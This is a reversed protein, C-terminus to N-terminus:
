QAIVRRYQILERWDFTPQPRQDPGPERAFSYTRYKSNQPYQLGQDVPPLDRRRLLELAVSRDIVFVGRYGPSDARKAGIQFVAPTADSGDHDGDTGVPTADFFDCQIFAVYTNSRTTGHDLVKGLLRYRTSFEANSGLIGKGPIAAVPGPNPSLPARGTDGLEFLARRGQYADTGGAADREVGNLDLTTLINPNFTNDSDAPMTRLLTRQFDSGIPGFGAAAPASGFDLFPRASPVGPLVLKQGISAQGLYPDFGGDRSALMALWWDRAFVGTPPLVGGGVATIWRETNIGSTYPVPTAGGATLFGLGSFPALFRPKDNPFSMARPDDLLGALTSPHRIMNVNIKGFERQRLRERLAPQRQGPDSLWPSPGGYSAFWPLADNDGHKKPVEVFEFLRYWLNGAPFVSARAGPVPEPAVDLPAPTARADADPFLFNVAATQRPDYVAVSNTNGGIKAETLERPTYLPVTLLDALTAFPRDFHRQWYQMTGGTSQRGLNNYNHGGAVFEPADSTAIGNDALPEIRNEARITDIQTLMEANTTTGNLDFVDLDVQMVDVIIWPNDQEIDEQPSGSTVDVPPATYAVNPFNTTDQVPAFRNLNARRRLYFTVTSSGAALGDRNMRSGLNLWGGAKPAAGSTALQDDDDVSGFARIDRSPDNDDVETMRFTNQSATAERAMLDFNLAAPAPAIREYDNFSGPDADKTGTLDISFNSPRIPAGPPTWATRTAIDSDPRVNNHADGSTGVSYAAGPLVAAAPDNLTVARGSLPTPGAGARCVISWGGGLSVPTATMNQLEVYTFDFHFEDNWDTAGYDEAALPSGEEFKKALIAMAEGFALQQGEVGFVMGRGTTTDLYHHLEDAATGVGDENVAGDRDVLMTSPIPNTYGDDLPTYGNSFDTDFVFCTIADDPDAADVMNVAFQAMEILQATSYVGAPSAAPPTNPRSMTDVSPDPNGFAYLLTYIDRALNQRDRRAHWEQLSPVPVTASRVTTAPIASPVFGDNMDNDNREATYLSYDSVGFSTPSGYPSLVAAADLVPLGDTPHRLPHPTLPRLLYRPTGDRGVYAAAVQNASLKRSLQKLAGQGASANPQSGLLGFVEARFPENAAPQGARAPHGAPLPQGSPLVEWPAPVPVSTGFRPPFTPASPFEPFIPDVEWARTPNVPVTASFAKLDSSTTTLRRRRDLYDTTTAGFNAPALKLLRSVIGNNTVDPDAMQLAAAEDAGFISDTVQDRALDSDLLTEGPDDVLRGDASILGTGATMATVLVTATNFNAGLAYTWIPGFGTSVNGLPLWYNRYIPLRVRGVSNRVATVQADAPLSRFLEILPTKGDNNVFTGQGQNDEPHRPAPFIMAPPFLQGNVDNFRSGRNGDAVGAAEDSATLGPRSYDYPNSSGATLADSLRNAEGWRGTFLQSAKGTTDLEGRGALVFWWEMNALQTATNPVFGFFRQHQTYDAGLPMPQAPTGSWAYQPNVESRRRGENAKSLFDFPNGAAGAQISALDTPTGYANGHANVNLLGDLDYVTIAFLPIFKETGDPTEEVPHDLDLWIAENVGGTTAADGDPDADLNHHAVPRGAPDVTGDWAWFGELPATRQTTPAAPDPAVPAGPAPLNETFFPGGAGGLYREVGSNEVLGTSYNFVRAQRAAHPRLVYPLTAANTYWQNPPVTDGGPGAPAATFLGRLYQPRHFSPIVVKKGSMPEVGIYSLFPSNLDPYSYPVDPATGVGFATRLNLPSGTVAAIGALDLTLRDDITDAAGTPGTTDSGVDDTGDGNRDIGTDPTTDQNQDVGPKGPTTGGLDVLNVGRGSYPQLDDGVLNALLSHRGGWLASNALDDQPGAIVQELAFDFLEDPSLQASYWKESATFYRANEREQSAITFFLFGLLMLASLLALVVVLVSGRRRPRPTARGPTRSRRPPSIRPLNM